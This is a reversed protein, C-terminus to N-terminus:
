SDHRPRIGLYAVVASGAIDYLEEPNMSWDYKDRFYVLANVAREM